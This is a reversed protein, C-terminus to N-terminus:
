CKQLSKSLLKGPEPLSRFIAMRSLFL